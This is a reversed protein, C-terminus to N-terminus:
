QVRPPILGLHRGLHALLILESKNKKNVVDAISCAVEWITSRMPNTFLQEHEQKYSVFEHFCDTAIRKEKKLRDFCSEIEEVVEKRGKYKKLWEKRLTEKFTSYEEDRIEGDILAVAYFAKAVHCYFSECCNIWGNM